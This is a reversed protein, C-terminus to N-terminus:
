GKNLGTILKILWAPTEPIKFSNRSAFPLASSYGSERM